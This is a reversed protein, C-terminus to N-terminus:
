QGCRLSRVPLVALFRFLRGGAAAAVIFLTFSHAQVAAAAALGALCGLTAGLLFGARRGFRQMFWSAPILTTATGVLTMAVPLTALSRDPALSLGVVGSATIVVVSTTQALAQACALLLVNRKESPAMAPTVTVRLSSAQHRRSSQHHRGAIGTGRVHRGSRLSGGQPRPDPQRPTSAIGRSLVVYMSDSVAAIAVFLGGLMLAQRTFDAPSDVFQPLLAAYFLATKPNLVAVIVGDRFVKMPRAAVPSPSTGPAHSRRLMQYALYFLYAAGLYKLAAYLLASTALVAALGLAAVAANVRM